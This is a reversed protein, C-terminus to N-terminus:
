QPPNGALKDVADSLKEEIGDVKEHGVKDGVVDGVKKIGDKIQEDHEAVFDQAKDKLGELDM